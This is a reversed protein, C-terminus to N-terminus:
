FPGAPMMPFNGTQDGGMLLRQAQMAQAALQQQLQAIQQAKQTVTTLIATNTDVGQRTLSLVREAMEAAQTDTPTGYGMDQSAASVMPQFRRRPATEQSRGWSRRNEAEDQESFRDEAASDRRAEQEQQRDYQQANKRGQIDLAKQQERRAEAERRLRSANAQNAANLQGQRELAAQAAVEEPTAREVDGLFGAPFASPNSKVITQVTRLAGQGEDDPHLMKTMLDRARDRDRQNRAQEIANIGADADPSAQGASRANKQIWRLRSLKDAEGPTYGSRLGPSNAITESLGKFVAASDGETVASKLAAMADRGAGTPTGILNDFERKLRDLKKEAEDAADGGAVAHWLQGFLPILMPLASAFGTFAISLKAATATSAGAARALQDFNNTISLLARDIGGGNSLVAMFDQFAYSAGLIGGRGGGSGGLEKIQANLEIIRLSSAGAKDGFEQASIAFERNRRVLDGLVDKEKLLEATLAAVRQQGDVELILRQIDADQSM